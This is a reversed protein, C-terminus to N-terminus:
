GRRSPSAGYGARLMDQGSMKSVDVPAGGNGSTDGGFSRDNSKGKLFEYKKVLEDVIKDVVKTDADGEDDVKLDNLMGDALALKFAADADAVKGAARAIFAARRAVRTARDEAAAIKEKNSKDLAEFDGRKRAEEDAKAQDAAKRAVLESNVQDFRERPIWGSRDDTSPQGTAPASAGGGGTGGADPAPAGPAPDGTPAGGTPPQTEYLPGFDLGTLRRTLLLM